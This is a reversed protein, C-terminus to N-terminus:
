AARGALVYKRKLHNAVAQRACKASSYGFVQAPTPTIPQPM